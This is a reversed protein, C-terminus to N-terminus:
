DNEKGQKLNCTIPKKGKQDVLLKATKGWHCQLKGMHTELLNCSTCQPTLVKKRM